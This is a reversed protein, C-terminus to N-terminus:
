GTNLLRCFIVPVYAHDDTLYHSQSTAVVVVSWNVLPTPSCSNCAAKPYNGVFHMEAARKFRALIGIVQVLKYDKQPEIFRPQRQWFDMRQNHECGLDMLELLCYEGTPLCHLPFLYLSIKDKWQSHFSKRLFIETRFNLDAYSTRKM